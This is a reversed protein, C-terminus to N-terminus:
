FIVVSTQLALESHDEVVQTRISYQRPRLSSRAGVNM